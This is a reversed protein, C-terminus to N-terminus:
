NNVNTFKYAAGEQHVEYMHNPSYMFLGNVGDSYQAYESNQGKMYLYILSVPTRKKDDKLKMIEEKTLKSSSTFRQYMNTQVTLTVKKGGIKVVDGVEMYMPMIHGELIGLVKKLSHADKITLNRIRWDSLKRSNQCNFVIDIRYFFDSKCGDIKGTFNGEIIAFVDYETVYQNFKYIDQSFDAQESTQKNITSKVISQCFDATLKQEIRQLKNSESNSSSCSYLVISFFFIIYLTHKM